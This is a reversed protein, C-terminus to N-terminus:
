RGQPVSSSVSLDSIKDLEEMSLSIDSNYGLCIQLIKIPRCALLEGLELRVKPMEMGGELKLGELM